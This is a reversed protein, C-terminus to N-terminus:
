QAARGSSSHTRAPGTIFSGRPNTRTGSGGSSPGLTLEGEGVRKLQKWAEKWIEYHPFATTSTDYGRRAFCVRSAEYRTVHKLFPYNEPSDVPVALSTSLVGNVADEAAARVKDWLLTDANGDGDDDLAQVVWGNPILSDLDELQIYHSM